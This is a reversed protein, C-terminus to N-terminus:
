GGSGYQERPATEILVTRFNRDGGYIGPRHVCHRACLLRDFSFGLSGRSPWTLFYPSTFNFFNVVSHHHVFLLLVMSEAASALTHKTMAIRTRLPM